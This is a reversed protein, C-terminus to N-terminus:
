ISSLGGHFRQRQTKRGVVYSLVPVKGLWSSLAMSAFYVALISVPWLSYNLWKSIGMTNLAGVLAEVFVILIPQILLIGFSTNSALTVFRSFWQWNPQLRRAAFACGAALTAITVILSYPIMMPQFIM